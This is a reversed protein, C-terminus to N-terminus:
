CQTFGLDLLTSDCCCLVNQELEQISHSRSRGIFWKQHYVQQWRPEKNQLFRGKPLM